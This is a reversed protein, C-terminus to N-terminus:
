FVLDAKVSLWEAHVGSYSAQFHWFFELELTVPNNGNKKVTTEYEYLISQTLPTKDPLNIADSDLGSLKKGNVLLYNDNRAGIRLGYSEVYFTVKVTIKNPNADPETTYAAYIGLSGAKEGAIVGSAGGPVPTPTVPKTTTAPQTTTTVAPTTVTPDKPTTTPTPTTTSPKPATTTVSPTVPTTSPTKTTTTPATTTASPTVPTTSPTQTTTGPAPTKVATSVTPSSSDTGGSESGSDSLVVILLTGTILIVTILAVLILTLYLNTKKM